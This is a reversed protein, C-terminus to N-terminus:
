YDRWRRLLDEGTLEGLAGFLVPDDFYFRDGRYGVLVAYHGNEWEASYDQNPTDSWAQFDVIVITGEDVCRRLDDLSLGEALRADLGRRRLCDLIRAPHTGEEANTGMEAAYEDQYGWHGFYQLVTQVAAVGCSYSNSQISDPVGDIWGARACGASALLLVVVTIRM